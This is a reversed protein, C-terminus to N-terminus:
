GEASERENAMMECVSCGDVPEPHDFQHKAELRQIEASIVDETIVDIRHKAPEDLGLLKARREQVRVLGL